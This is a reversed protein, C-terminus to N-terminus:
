PSKEHGPLMLCYLFHMLDDCMKLGRIIPPGRLNLKQSTRKDMWLCKARLCYVASLRRHLIVFYNACLETLNLRLFGLARVFVFM